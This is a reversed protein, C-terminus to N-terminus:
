PLKAIRKNFGQVSHDYAKQLLPKCTEFTTQSPNLVAVWGMWGYVKHPMLVNLASFDWPGEITQGKAPRMPRAGFIDDFAKKPLGFNLRFIGDRDLDSGRDNEGNKQKLTCFYTGRPLRADPNYFFSLEGWSETPVLGSHHQILYESIQSITMPTLM